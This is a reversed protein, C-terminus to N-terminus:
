RARWRAVPPPAIAPYAEIDTIRGCNNCAQAQPAAFLAALSLLSALLFNKMPLEKPHPIPIDPWTAM